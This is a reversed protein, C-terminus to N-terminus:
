APVCQAPGDVGAAAGSASTPVMRAAVWDMCWAKLFRAQKLGVRIFLLVWSLHPM